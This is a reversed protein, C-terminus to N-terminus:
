LQLPERDQKRGEDEEAAEGVEHLHHRQPPRDVLRLPHELQRGCDHRDCGGDHDEREDRLRDGDRARAGQLGGVVPQSALDLCVLIREVPQALRAGLELLVYSLARALELM